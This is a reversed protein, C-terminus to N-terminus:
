PEEFVIKVWNYTNEIKGQDSLVPLVQSMPIKGDLFFNRVNLARAVALKKSLVENLGTPDLSAIIKVETDATFDHADFYAQIQATSEETVSISDQGFLVILGEQEELEKITQDYSESFEANVQFLQISQEDTEERTVKLKEELDKIKQLLFENKDALEEAASAAVDENSNETSEAIEHVETLVQEKFILIQFLLASAVIMVFFVFVIIDSSLIDVFGPWAMSALDEEAEESM